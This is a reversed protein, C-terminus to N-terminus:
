FCFAEWFLWHSHWEAQLHSDCARRNETVTGAFIVM